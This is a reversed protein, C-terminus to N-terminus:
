SRSCPRSAPATSASWASRSARGPRSTSTGCPGPWGAQADGRLGAFGSPEDRLLMRRRDARFRKWIHTAAITGEPSTPLARRWVNSPRYGLVLVLVSPVDGAVVLLDPGRRAARPDHRYGDIVPRWPTSPSTSPQWQRPVLDDIAYAVPTAFLGIQLLIPLAHRIDRLYVMVASLTLAVGLTFAIQVFLLVPGLGLRAAARVQLGPVPRWSCM